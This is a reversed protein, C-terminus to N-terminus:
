EVVNDIQSHSRTACMFERGSNSSSTAAWLFYILFFQFFFTCYNAEFLYSVFFVVASLFIPDRLGRRTLRLLTYLVVSFFGLTTIAGCDSLVEIYVNHVSGQSFSDDLNWLAPNLREVILDHNTKIGHGIILSHPTVAELTTYIYALRGLDSPNLSTISAGALTSASNALKDSLVRGPGTQALFLGAAAIALLATLTLLVSRVSRLNISQIMMILISLVLSLRSFLFWFTVLFLALVVAAGRFRVFPVALSLQLAFFTSFDSLSTITYAGFWTEEFTFLLSLVCVPILSKAYLYGIAAVDDTVFSRFFNIFLLAALSTWPLYLEYFSVHGKAFISVIPLVISEVFILMVVPRPAIIPRGAKYLFLLFGLPLITSIVRVGAVEQWSKITLAALFLGALWLPFISRRLTMSRTAAATGRFPQTM